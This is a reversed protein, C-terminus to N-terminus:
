TTELGPPFARPRIIRVLKLRQNEGKEIQVRSQPVRFLKGLYKKLYQNAKGDVAPATIRIKIHTEDILMEDSAAGPIVKLM